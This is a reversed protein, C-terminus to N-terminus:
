KVKKAGPITTIATNKVAKKEPMETIQSLSNPKKFSINTAGTELVAVIKPLAKPSAVIDVACPSITSAIAYMSTGPKLGVLRGNASRAATSVANWNAPRPIAIPELILLKSPKWRILVNM